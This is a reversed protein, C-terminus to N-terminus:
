LLGADHLISYVANRRESKVLDTRADNAIEQLSPLADRYVQLSKCARVILTTETDDDSRLVTEGAIAWAKGDLVYFNLTAFGGLYTAQTEVMNRAQATCGPKIAIM